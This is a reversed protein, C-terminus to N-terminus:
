DVSGAGNWLGRSGAQRWLVYAGWVLAALMLLVGVGWFWRALAHDYRLCGTRELLNWWDHGERNEQGIEGTTLLLVGRRADDIYPACDMFSQGLWWAGVAAGFPDEQRLFAGMVIVPVLLQGLTGGAVHMFDGLPWFVMHGAEHFPLHINHLVCLTLSPGQIPLFLLTFWWYALLLLFAGRVAVMGWGEAPPVEFMRERLWGLARRSLGPEPPEPQPVPGGPRPRYRSFIVGCGPCEELDDPNEQQCRPCRMVEM